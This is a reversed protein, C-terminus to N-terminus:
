EGAERYRREPTPTLDLDHGDETTPCRFLILIAIWFGLGIVVLAAILCLATEVLATMM